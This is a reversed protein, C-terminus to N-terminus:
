DNDDQAQRFKNMHLLYLAGTIITSMRCYCGVVVVPNSKALTCLQAAPTCVNLFLRALCITTRCGRTLDLSIRISYAGAETYRMMVYCWHSQFFSGAGVTLGALIASQFGCCGQKLNTQVVPCIATESGM